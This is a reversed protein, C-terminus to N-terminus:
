QKSRVYKELILRDIGLAEVKEIGQQILTDNKISVKFNFVHGEWERADCYDLHETYQDGNLTYWGGGSSYIANLSDKGKILDHRFFAFHSANIIKIMQQGKTYDTITTDDKVITTGSLLEWTGTIPHTTQNSLSSTDNCSCIMFVALITSIKKIV